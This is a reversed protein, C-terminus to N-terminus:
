RDRSANYDLTYTVRTMGLERPVAANLPLVTPKPPGMRVIQVAEAICKATDDQAPDTLFNKYDVRDDNLLFKMTVRGHSSKGKLCKADIVPFNEEIYHRVNGLPQPGNAFTLAEEEVTCLRCTNVLNDRTLTWGVAAVTVATVLTLVHSVSIRFGRQPAARQETLAVSATTATTGGGPSTQAIAPAPFRPEPQAQPQLDVTANGTEIPAPATRPAPGVAGLPQDRLATQLAFWFATADPLRSRVPRVVSMNMLSELAVPFRAGVGQQRARVTASPMPEILVERLIEAISAAPNEASRWLSRGTLTTYLLLGLAWVDAAPTVGVNESQEPAMWLPTGLFSGDATEGQKLSAGAATVKALGFDLVKVLFDSDGASRPAALFINQPKLDRHVIGLAHAAGIAHCLQRFLHRTEDLSLPGRDLRTALDEGELLEMVLFPTGTPEDIGATIVEVIHDSEIRSGVRAELVFRRRADDNRVADGRMLKLARTKGTSRQKVVYVAGMGGTALLREVEFDGAFV